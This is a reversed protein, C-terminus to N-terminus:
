EEPEPDRRLRKLRGRRRKIEVNRRRATKSPRRKRRREREEEMRHSRERERIEEEIRDCLEARALLRNVERSRERQCKVEHGSPLHRLQVCSATKNIKQGGPGSGLVFKEDLDAERIGLREMRRGLDERRDTEVM